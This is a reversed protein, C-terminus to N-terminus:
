EFSNPFAPSQSSQVNFVFIQYRPSSHHLLKLPVFPVFCISPHFLCNADISQSISGFQLVYRLEPLDGPMHRPQPLPIM